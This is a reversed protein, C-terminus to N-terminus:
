YISVPTQPTSISFFDDYVHSLLVNLSQSVDTKVNLSLYYMKPKDRRSSSLLLVTASVLSVGIQKHFRRHFPLVQLRDAAARAYIAQSM